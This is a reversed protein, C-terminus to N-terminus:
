RSAGARFKLVHEMLECSGRGSQQTTVYIPHTFSVQGVFNAINAVGVSVECISFLPGDNPSDGAYVVNENVSQKWVGEVLRRLGLAKDFDGYWANVHINSVKASAGEDMCFEAVKQAEFLPLPPSVEEAFDFAVDFIRSFQDSAIRVKPFRRLVKQKLESLRNLVQSTPAQSQYTSSSPDFFLRQIPDGPRRAQCGSAWYFCAAGNESVVADFPLLRLVADGWGVSRGTVLVTRLGSKSCRSLMEVVSADLGHHDTLTDDLDFALIQRKQFGPDSAPTWDKLPRM